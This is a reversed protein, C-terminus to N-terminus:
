FGSERELDHSKKNIVFGSTEKHIKSSSKELSYEVGNGSWSRLGLQTEMDRWGSGM